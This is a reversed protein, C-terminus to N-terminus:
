NMNIAEFTGNTITVKQGSGSMDYLTGSFTGKVLGINSFGSSGSAASAAATRPDYSTISVNMISRSDDRSNYIKQTTIGPM